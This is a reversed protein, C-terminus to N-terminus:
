PGAVVIPLSRLVFGNKLDIQFQFHSINLPEPSGIGGLWKIAM